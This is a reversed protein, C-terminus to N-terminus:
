FTQPKFGIAIPNLTGQEENTVEQENNASALSQVKLKSSKIRLVGMWALIKKEYTWFFVFQGFLFGVLLIIFQYGFIFVSLSLLFKWLWWTNAAVGIWAHISRSIFATSIGTIAFVCIILIFQGTGVKWKERLKKLM